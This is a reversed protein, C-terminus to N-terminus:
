IGLKPVAQNPLYLKETVVFTGKRVFIARLLAYLQVMAMFYNLFVYLIYYRKPAKALTKMYSVGQFLLIPVMYASYQMGFLLLVLTVAMWLGQLYMNVHFLFDVKGALSIPSNGMVEWFYKRADRITGEAWRIQQKVFVRFDKPSSGISIVFPLVTIRLKRHALTLLTLAYDETISEPFRLGDERILDYRIAIGSGTLNPFARNYINWDSYYRSSYTLWNLPTELPLGDFWFFQIVEKNLYGYVDKVSTNYPIHDSDFIFIYDYQTKEEILINFVHNVAGAKFGARDKRHIYRVKGKHVANTTGGDEAIIYTVDEGKSWELWKDIDVPDKYTPFIVCIKKRPGYAPTTMIQKALKNSRTTILIWAGEITLFFTAIVGIIEMLEPTPIMRDGKQPEDAQRRM